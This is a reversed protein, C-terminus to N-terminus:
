DDGWQGSFYLTAAFLGAFGTMYIVVGAAQAFRVPNLYNGTNTNLVNNYSGYIGAVLVVALLISAAIM